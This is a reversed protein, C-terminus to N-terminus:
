IEEIEISTSYFGPAFHTLGPLQMLKGYVMHTREQEWNETNDPFLSVLVPTPMGNNLLIKNLELRDTQDLVKLDFNISNYRPGRRTVLDGSETREHTSMDKLTNTLGFSTNYTPSWVPGVILRSAEIYYGTAATRTDTITIALYRITTNSQTSNLWVRLYTGGGYSYTNVGTGINTLGLSNWPCCAASAVSYSTTGGTITPSAITGGLTPAASGVGYGRVTITASSSVLNTFPLVIGGVKTGSSGFDLLLIATASTATATNASSRWVKGKSDNKLNSVPTNAQSSSAIITANDALNKYIIRLNNIAM